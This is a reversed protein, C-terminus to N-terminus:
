GAGTGAGTMPTRARCPSTRSCRRTRSERPARGTATRRSDSSASHSPKTRGPPSDVVIALSARIKSRSSGSRSRIALPSGTKPVQAPMIRSASRMSSPMSPWSVRPPRSMVTRRLAKPRCTSEKSVLRSKAPSVSGTCAIKMRAGHTSATPSPTSTSALTGASGAWPGAAPLITATRCPGSIAVDNWGSTPPSPRRCRTKTSRTVDCEDLGTMSWFSARMDPWEFHAVVLCLFATMSARRPLINALSILFMSTAARIPPPSM